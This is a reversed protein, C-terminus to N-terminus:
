LSIVNESINWKRRLFLINETPIADEVPFNLTPVDPLLLSFTHTSIGGIYEKAVIVGKGNESSFLFYHFKSINFHEKAKRPISKASTEVSNADKKFYKCWWNRFNKIHSNEVVHVTFKRKISSSVIAEVFEM